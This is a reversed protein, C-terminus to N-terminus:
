LWRTKHPFPGPHPAKGARLNHACICCDGESGYTSRFISLRYGDSRNWGYGCMPLLNGEADEAYTHSLAREDNRCQGSRYAVISPHMTVIPKM